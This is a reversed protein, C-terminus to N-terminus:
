VWRVRYPVRGQEWYTDRQIAAALADRMAAPAAALAGTLAGVGPGFAAGALIVIATTPKFNPIAAFAIRGFVALATMVATCVTRSLTFFRRNQTPM